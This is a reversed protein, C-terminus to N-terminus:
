LKSKLQEYYERCLLVREKMADITEQDRYIMFAKVRNERKVRDFNHQMEVHNRLEMNEDILNHKWHQQRVVDDVMLEPTNTLCYIVMSKDRNFLDMYAQVQYYYAKNELEDSYFIPFYTQASYSSKIEIILDDTLADCHGTFFDNEAYERVESEIDIWSLGLDLIDNAMSLSEKEVQKGKETYKSWFEEKYGLENELLIDLICDKATKSLTEGKSRPNTMIQGILSARVKM